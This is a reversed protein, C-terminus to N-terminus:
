GVILADRRNRLTHLVSMAVLIGTRPNTPSPVNEIEFRLSGFAGEATISHMNRTVTPDALMVVETRDLGIGALSVAAAVNISEPFRLAAERAPGRFLEHAGTLAAVEDPPLLTHAPKRTTHTVRDLGGLAAAAIADLAGVAGSAIRAQSGGERAAATVEELLGPVAFAGVSVMVLDYGARLVGPGHAALAAHGGAEVVVEPKAALLAALTTVIEPGVVTRSKAADRVLAAVVTIEPEDAALRTVEQGIAGYGILGVRLPAKAV